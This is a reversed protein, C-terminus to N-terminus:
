VNSGTTQMGQILNIPLQRRNSAGVSQPFNIHQDNRKYYHSPGLPARNSSEISWLHMSLLRCSYNSEIRTRKALSVTNGFYACEGRSKQCRHGPGQKVTEALESYERQVDHLKWRLSGSFLSDFSPVYPDKM